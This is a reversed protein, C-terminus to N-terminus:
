REMRSKCMTMAHAADGALTISGGKNDWELCEWDALKVETVITDDPIGEIVARIPSAFPEARSKMNALRAADTDEVEDAACEFPWSLNIQVTYMPNEANGPSTKPTDLKSFWMFTRTTPHCGQFVLPGLSQLFAMQEPRLLTKVGTFRFPLQSPSYTDPLLIKRMASNTGDVGVVVSTDYSSGDTCFVQVSDDGAESSSVRDVQKGWHINQEIGEMLARRMDERNVRWRKGSPINFKVSADELNLFPFAGSDKAAIEADVQCSKIRDVVDPPLM